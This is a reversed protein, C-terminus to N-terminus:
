AWFHTWLRPFNQAAHEKNLQFPTKGGFSRVVNGIACGV